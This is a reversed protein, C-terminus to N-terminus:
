RCKWRLRLRWWRQGSHWSSELQRGSEVWARWVAALAIKWFCLDFEMRQSLIRWHSRMVSAIFILRGQQYIFFCLVFGHSRTGLLKRIKYWISVKERERPGPLYWVQESSPSKVNAKGEAQFTRGPDKCPQNGWMVSIWIQM